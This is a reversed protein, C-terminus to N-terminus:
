LAAISAPGSESWFQVICGHLTSPPVWINGLSNIEYDFGSSEVATKLAEMNSVAVIFGLFRAPHGSLEPLVGMFATRAVGTPLLWLDVHRLKVTITGHTGEVVKSGWLAAYQQAIRRPEKAVALVGSFRTATNPHRIFEPRRYLEPNRYRIAMWYLPSLGLSPISVEFEPSIVEGTPLFWDRRFRMPPPANFGKANLKEVTALIDDSAMVMSVPHGVEALVQKMVDPAKRADDMALLEIFNCCDDSRPRFCILRNSMGPLVSRPTLTFGLKEFYAGASQSDSVSVMLHDIDLIGATMPQSM